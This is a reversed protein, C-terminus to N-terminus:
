ISSETLAKLYLSIFNFILFALSVKYSSKLQLSLLFWPKGVRTQEGNNFIAGSTEWQNPITQQKVDLVQYNAVFDGLNM